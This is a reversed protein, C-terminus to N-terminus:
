PDDGCARIYMQVIEIEPLLGPTTDDRVEEWFARPHAMWRDFNTELICKTVKDPGEYSSIREVLDDVHKKKREIKFNISHSQQLGSSLREHLSQLVLNLQEPKQWM